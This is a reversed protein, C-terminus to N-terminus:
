EAASATSQARYAERASNFMDAIEQVTVEINKWKDGKKTTAISLKKKQDPKGLLISHYGDVPTGDRKTADLLQGMNVSFSGYGTKSQDCPISINAFEKGDATKNIHILANNVFNIFLNKQAM